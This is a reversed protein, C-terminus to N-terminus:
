AEEKEIAVTRIALENGGFSITFKAFFLNLYKDPIEIELCSWEYEQMNYDIALRYLELFEIGSTDAVGTENRDFGGIFNLESQETRNQYVIKIKTTTGEDMKVNGFSFPVNDAYYKSSYGIYFSQSFVSAAGTNTLVSASRIGDYSYSCGNLWEYRLRYISEFSSSFDITNEGIDFAISKLIVKGTGTFRLRLKEVKGRKGSSFEVSSKQTKGKNEKNLLYGYEVYEGGIYYGVTVGTIASDAPLVYQLTAGSYGDTTTQRECVTEISVGSASVDFATGERSGDFSVTVGNESSFGYAQKDNFSIGVIDFPKYESFFIESLLLANDVGVATYRFEIKTLNGTMGKKKYFNFTFVKRAPMLSDISITEMVRSGIDNYLLVTLERAYGFNRLGINFTTLEDLLVSKESPIRLTVSAVNDEQDRLAIENDTHIMLGDVTNYVDALVTKDSVVSNANLPFVLGESREEQTASKADLETQSANKLKASVEDSDRVEIEKAIGEISRILFVNRYDEPDDPDSKYNAQIRLKGLYASTGWVSYGNTCISSLDFDIYQWEDEESMNIQESSLQLPGVNAGEYNPYCYKQSYEAGTLSYKENELDNLATFFVSVNTCPGLNKFCLRVIQSSTIDLNYALEVYGDGYTPTYGFNVYACKEGNALTKSEVYGAEDGNAVTVGNVSGLLAELYDSLRDTEKRGQRPEESLYIGDSRKMYINTDDSIPQSYDFPQVYDPDCFSGLYEYGFALESLEQVTSGSFLSYTETLSDGLYYNVTCKKLWKAYLTIDETVVDKKFNWEREYDASTYWGYVELNETNDHLIFANPKKVKKGKTIVQDLIANTELDINTEFHVTAENKNKAGCACLSLACSLALTFFLLLYIGKKM